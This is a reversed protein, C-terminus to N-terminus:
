KVYDRIAYDVLETLASRTEPPFEAFNLDKGSALMLDTNAKPDDGGEPKEGKQSKHLDLLRQVIDLSVEKRRKTEVANPRSTGARQDEWTAHWVVGGVAGMLVLGVRGLVFYTVAGLGVVCAGITEGNATSLFNMVKGTLEQAKPAPGSAGGNSSQTM